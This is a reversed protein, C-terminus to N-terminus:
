GWDTLYRTVREDSLMWRSSMADGAITFFSDWKTLDYLNDYSKRAHYYFLFM